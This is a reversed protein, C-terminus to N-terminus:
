EDDAICNVVYRLARNRGRGSCTSLTIIRNSAEPAKDGHYYSNEVTMDQWKIWDEESPFGTYYTETTDYCDYTSYVEGCLVKDPMYIYVTRNERFFDESEYSHLTGFMRSINHGYIVTHRDTFDESVDPQIFVAGAPNYAGTFDHNLYYNVTRSKLVPNDIKTGPIYIWAIIDPNAAQLIDWDIERGEPEPIDVDEVAIGKLRFLAAANKWHPCSFYIAAGACLVAGALLFVAARNKRKGKMRREKSGPLCYSADRGAEYHFCQVSFPTHMGAQAKSLEQVGQKSVGLCARVSIRYLIM